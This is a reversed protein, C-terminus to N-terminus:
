TATPRQVLAGKKVYERYPVAHRWAADRWYCHQVVTAADDVREAGLLQDAQDFRLIYVTRSDFLWYDHAPLGVARPRPLYRIDEGAAVTGGCDYLGFRTYDSWPESVVRVRTFRKGAATQSRVNARWASTFSMDAWGEALFQAFPGAEDGMGYRERTELRFATHEFEQFLRDFAAGTALAGM